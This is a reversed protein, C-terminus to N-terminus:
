FSLPIGQQAGEEILCYQFLKWAGADGGFRRYVQWQSPLSKDEKCAKVWDNWGPLRGLQVAMQLGAQIMAQDSNPELGVLEAEQRAERLSGFRQIYIAASPLDPSANIDRATPVRGLQTALRKLSDILSQNDWGPKLEAAGLAERWGGPWLAAIERTSLNTEPDDKFHSQTPTRGLRQACAQLERVAALQAKNM